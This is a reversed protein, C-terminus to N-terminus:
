QGSMKLRLYHTFVAHGLKMSPKQACILAIEAFVADADTNNGVMEGPTDMSSLGSRYGLIWVKGQLDNGKTQWHACSDLGIGFSASYAATGNWLVAILVVSVFRLMM